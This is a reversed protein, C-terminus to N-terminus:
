YRFILTLLAIMPLPVGLFWVLFNRGVKAEVSARIQQAFEPGIV